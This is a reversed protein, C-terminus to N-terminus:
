RSWPWRRAARQESVPSTLRPVDGGALVPLFANLGTDIQDACARAAREGQQYPDEVDFSMSNPGAALLVKRTLDEVATVEPPPEGWRSAAAVLQGFGMIKGRHGPFGELLRMHQGFEFTLVLDSEGVVSDDVSRSVHGEDTGGRERLLAAMAPDMRRGPYGPVGASAFDVDFAELVHRARREAYPSRSINATCVFLVRLPGSTGSSPAGTM